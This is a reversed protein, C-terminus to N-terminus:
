RLRREPVLIVDGQEFYLANGRRNLKRIEAAREPTGYLSRSIQHSTARAPVVYEVVRLAAEAQRAAHARFAALLVEGSQRIPSAVSAPANRVLKITEEIRRNMRDVQSAAQEIATTDPMAAEVAEAISGIGEEAADLAAGVKAWAKALDDFTLGAAAVADDLRAASQLMDSAGGIASPRAIWQISQNGEEEFTLALIGGNRQNPSTTWSHPAPRVMVPGDEPDILEMVGGEDLKGMLLEYLDPYHSEDIDAFLPVTYTYVRAQRGTDETFQGDHFAYKRRAFDRGGNVSRDAVPFVLGDLSADQLIEDWAEIAM